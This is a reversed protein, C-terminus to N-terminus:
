SIEMKGIWACSVSGLKVTEILVLPIYGHQFKLSFQANSIMGIRMNVEM